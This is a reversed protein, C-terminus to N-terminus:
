QDQFTLKRKNIESEIRSLLGIREDFAAPLRYTRIFVARTMLRLTTQKYSGCLAALNSDVGSVGWGM